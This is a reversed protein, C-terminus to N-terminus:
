RSEEERIRRALEETLSEIADRWGLEYACYPCRHRGPSAQSLNLSEISEDLPTLEGKSRDDHKRCIGPM